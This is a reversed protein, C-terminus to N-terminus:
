ISRCGPATLCSYLLNEIFIQQTFIFTYAELIVTIHLYTEDHCHNHHCDNPKDVLHFFLLVSMKSNHLIIVIPLIFHEYM